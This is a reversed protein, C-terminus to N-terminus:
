ATLQHAAHLGSKSWLSRKILRSTHPPIAEAGGKNATKSLRRTWKNKGTRTRKM